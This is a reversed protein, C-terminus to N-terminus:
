YILLRQRRSLTDTSAWRSAIDSVEVQAVLEVRETEDAAESDGGHDRQAVEVEGGRGAVAEARHPGSAHDGVACWPVDESGGQRGVDVADLRVDGLMGAGAQGLHCQEGAVVQGAAPGCGPLPGRLCSRMRVRERAPRPRRRRAETEGVPEGAAVGHLVQALVEAGRVVRPGPRNFRAPGDLVWVEGARGAPLEDWGPLSTLLERESLTREPSFGCPLVLVVDPRAARVAAREMPKTHEGPAALLPEAGACALQEPVRHGAPWLPDLWEIAVGRARRRGATLRRVAALRNRLRAASNPSAGFVWCAGWGCWVTSCTMWPAPSRSLVKPGGGDLVRVAESVGSYSVARVECLDQTLVVDPALAALAESDLTDVSRLPHGPPRPRGPRLKPLKPPRCVMSTTSM